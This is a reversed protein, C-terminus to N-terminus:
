DFKGHLFWRGDTLRRFLWLRRGSGTEVRYYDRRASRGRWWGTEIREPGWRHAIREEQDDLWLSIPPGDPVISVLRIPVPERELRLPRQGARLVPSRNALERPARRGSAPRPKRHASGLLPAPRWAHEPQADHWARAQVVAAAGLRSTLRDVLQGLAQEDGGAAGTEFLEQQHCALPASSLIELSIGAVADALALRELKLHLLDLLHRENLTPRVLAIAFSVAQKSESELRCALRAIGQRRQQLAAALKALQEALVRAIVDRSGTPSELWREAREPADVRCPRIVEAVCGLAQDWRLLLQPGFRAAIGARALPELQALTLLGLEYLWALLSDPLRLSEIPLAALAALTEGPPVLWSGVGLAADIPGAEKEAWAYHAVAWAAGITDALAVRAPLQQRHFHEVVQKLLVAEGGFLRGLGTVDLLLSEPWAVEELGVIPSFMECAAALQVLAARDAQRDCPELRLAATRGGRRPGSAVSTAEAVTMGPTVKRQEALPSVAVVRAGGRAPSEYLALAVHRL